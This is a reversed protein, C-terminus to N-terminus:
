GRSVDTAATYFLVENINKIIRKVRGAGTHTKLYATDILLGEVGVNKAAIYDWLYSDGVMLASRKSLGLRKLVRTIVAGKGTPINRAAHVEDFLTELGFHRVKEKLIADAEKAFHPHTSIVVTMIGQKRLERLTSVVGPILILHPKYDNMTASDHYIWHPKQTHKTSKPYWLTGDGDFFIIKKM